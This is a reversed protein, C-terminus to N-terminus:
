ARMFELAKTKVSEHLEIEPVDGIMNSARNLEEEVRGQRQALSTKKDRSINHIIKLEALISDIGRTGEVVAKELPGFTADSSFDIHLDSASKKYHKLAERATQRTQSLRKNSGKMKASFLTEEAASAVEDYTMRARAAPDNCRYDGGDLLGGRLLRRIGGCRQDVAKSLAQAESALAAAAYESLATQINAAVSESMSEVMFFKSYKSQIAADSWSESAGLVIQSKWPQSRDSKYSAWLNEYSDNGQDSAAQQEANDGEAQLELFCTVLTAKDLILGGLVKAEEDAPEPESLFSFVKGTLLNMMDKIRSLAMVWEEAARGGASSYSGLTTMAFSTGAHLAERVATVQEADTFLLHRQYSVKKLVNTTELNPSATFSALADLMRKSSDIKKMDELKALSVRRMSDLKDGVWSNEPFATANCIEEVFNDIGKMNEVDDSVVNSISEGLWREMNDFLKHWGSDCSLPRCLKTMRNLEAVIERFRNEDNIDTSLEVLLAAMKPAIAFEDARHRLFQVLLPSWFKRDELDQKSPLWAEALSGDLFKKTTTPDMGVMHEVSPTGLVELLKLITILEDVAKKLIAVDDASIGPLACDTAKLVRSIDHHLSRILLKNNKGAKILPQVLFESVVSRFRSVMAAPEAAPVDRLRPKLPDFTPEEEDEAKEVADNYDDEERGLPMIADVMDEVEHAHKVRLKVLKLAYEPPWVQGKKHLDELTKHLFSQDVSGPNVIKYASEYKLRARRVNSIGNSDSATDEFRTANYVDSGNYHGQLVKASDLRALLDAEKEKDSKKGHRKGAGTTTGAGDSICSKTDPSARPEVRCAAKPSPSPQSVTALSGALDGLLPAPRPARDGSDAALPFMDRSAAATSAGGEADAGGYPVAEGEADLLGRKSEAPTDKGVMGLAKKKLFELSPPLKNGRLSVPLQDNLLKQMKDFVNTPQSQQLRKKSDMNVITDEIEVKCWVKVQIFPASDDTTIAMDQLTQNANFPSPISAAKEGLAELDLGKTDAKAMDSEKKAAFNAVVTYGMRKHAAISQLPFPREEPAVSSMKILKEYNGNFQDDASCQGCVEKFSLGIAHFASM